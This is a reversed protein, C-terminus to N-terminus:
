QHAEVLYCWRATQGAQTITLYVEFSADFPLYDPFLNNNVSSTPTANIGVVAQAQAQGAGNSITRDYIRNGDLFAEIRYDLAGSPVEVLMIRVAGRGTASYIRTRTAASMAVTYQALGAATAFSSATPAYVTNQIVVAERGSVGVVRRAGLTRGDGLPFQGANM